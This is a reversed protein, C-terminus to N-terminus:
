KKEDWEIVKQEDCTFAPNTGANKQCRWAFSANKLEGRFTVGYFRVEFKKPEGGELFSSCDIQPEDKMEAINASTCNKYEGVTWNKATVITLKNHPIFGHEDAVDWLAYAGGALILLLFLCGLAPFEERKKSTAPTTATKAIMKELEENARRNGAGSSYGSRFGKFFGKIGQRLPM